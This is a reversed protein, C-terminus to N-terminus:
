KQKYPPNKNKVRIQIYKFRGMESIICNSIQGILKIESNIQNFFFFLLIFIENKKM